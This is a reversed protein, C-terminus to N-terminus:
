VPEIHLERGRVPSHTLSSCQSTMTVLVGLCHDCQPIFTHATKHCFHFYVASQLVMRRTSRTGFRFKFPAHVVASPPCNSEQAGGPQFSHGECRENGGADASSFSGEPEIGRVQRKWIVSQCKSCRSKTSFAQWAKLPVQAYISRLTIPHSPTPFAPEDLCYTVTRDMGGLFCMADGNCFDTQRSFRVSCMLVSHPRFARYLLCITRM